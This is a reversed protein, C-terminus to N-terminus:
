PNGVVFTERGTATNGRSDVVRVSMVHEGDRVSKSDWGHALLVRYLGARHRRNQRTGSAYVDFFGAAPLLQRVDFASHWAGGDLSWRVLAPTVHAKEWPPPPRLSPLDHAEVVLDVVGRVDGEVPNGNREVLIRDVSPLTDDFYPGMAGPRLPNVYAGGRRESVHVHQWTMEVRGIQTRYAVAVRGPRVSPVVHWYELVAGDTRQIVVVDAHRPNALVFGSGTAFVPTGDPASVDVGFHFSFVTPGFGEAPGIRPDGFNGRAAHPAFFPKVPWGYAFPGPALVRLVVRVADRSSAAGVSSARLDVSIRAGGRAKAAPMIELRVIARRGPGLKVVYSGAAVAGTVDKGGVRYRIQFGPGRRPGRLTFSDRSDGANELRTVFTKPSGPATPLRLTQKAPLGYVGAGVFSSTGDLAISLDPQSHAVTARWHPDRDAGPDNTIPHQDAGDARMVYIEDNGDRDTEFVIRSGDPAWAPNRDGAENSTLRAASSGDPSGVYIEAAGDRESSFAIRTGDPAWRPDVDDGPSSTIPTQGSGDPGMVFLDRSGEEGRVFVISTGDPSWSAEADNSGPSNTLNVPASGDANMVYIEGNGDRNSTFLIRRGDRSWSPDADVGPSTTLRKQASGDAAMVYIERDGDRDSSFVVMTSDPSWQPDLENAATRTLRRQNGGEPGMVYLQSPAGGRVAEFVVVGDSGAAADASLFV